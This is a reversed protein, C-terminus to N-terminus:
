VGDIFANAETRTLSAQGAMKTLRMKGWIRVESMVGPWSMQQQIPDLDRHSEGAWEVKEELKLLWM